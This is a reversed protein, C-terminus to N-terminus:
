LELTMQARVAGPLTLLRAVWRSVTGDALAQDAGRPRRATDLLVQTHQQKAITVPRYRHSRM